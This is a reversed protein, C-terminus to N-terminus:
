AKRKNRKYQDLGVAFVIILGMVFKQWYASVGVLNMGNYLVSMFLAGFVTGLITGSGGNLSTGGIIVATIVQMEYGDGISPQASGLRAAMLIGSLAALITVIVYVSAKIRNVNIGSYRATEENGGIAYVKRGYITHKLVWNAVIALVATLIVVYPIGLFSGLSFQSFATPLPYIPTGKTIVLVLGRAMYMTGLTTILPPISFKVVVLANLLGGAVGSLLGILIALPISMGSKLCIGCILGCLALFSGVSLDLGAAILVFTMGISIILIYSTSRLVDNINDFSFFVPNMISILVCLLILPILIGTERANFFKSLFNKTKV